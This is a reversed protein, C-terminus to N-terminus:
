LAAAEKPIPILRAVLAAFPWMFFLISPAFPGVPTFLALPVIAAAIFIEGTSIWMSRRTIALESPSLELFDARSRAHVYMLALILQIVAFAVGFYIAIQKAQDIGFNREAMLDWNGSSASVFFLFATDFCFRLPYAIFLVFLLLAANLFIIQNDAVGYRRFFTFHSHWISLLVAFSAAVPVITLLHSELEGFTVPPQSASVIMGLALAFVIDSLNEIRTVAEGRWRFNPDHDLQRSVAQRIM